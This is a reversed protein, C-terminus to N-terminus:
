RAPFERLMALAFAKTPVDMFLIEPGEIDWGVVRWRKGKPHRPMWVVEYIARHRQNGVARYTRKFKVDQYSNGLHFISMCHCMRAEKEDTLNFLYAFRSRTKRRKKPVESLRNTTSGAVASQDHINM